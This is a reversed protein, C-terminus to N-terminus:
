KKEELVEKISEGKIREIIPILVERVITSLEVHTDTANGYLEKQLKIVRMLADLMDEKLKDDKYNNCANVIFKALSEDGNVCCIMTNNADYIDWEDLVQMDGEDNGYIAPRYDYKCKITKDDKLTLLDSLTKGDSNEYFNCFICIRKCDNKHICTKCSIGEAINKM